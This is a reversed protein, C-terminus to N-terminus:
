ICTCISYSCVWFRQLYVKLKILMILTDVYETYRSISLFCLQRITLWIHYIWAVFSYVFYCLVCNSYSWYEDYSFNHTQKCCMILHVRNSKIHYINDTVQSLDTTRVGIKIFLLVSQWSMVSFISLIASFVSIGLRFKYIAIFLSYM